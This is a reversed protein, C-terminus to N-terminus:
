RTDSPALTGFHERASEGLAPMRSLTEHATPPLFASCLSSSAAAVNMAWTGGSPVCGCRLLEASGPALEKIRQLRRDWAAGLDAMPVTM